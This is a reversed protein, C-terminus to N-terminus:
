GTPGSATVPVEEADDGFMSGDSHPVVPVDTHWGPETRDCGGGKSRRNELLLIEPHQSFAAPLTRHALTVAGFVPGFV